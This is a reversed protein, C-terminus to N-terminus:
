LSLVLAVDVAGDQTSHIWVLDKRSAVIRSGPKSFWVVSSSSNKRHPRLMFWSRWRTAWLWM